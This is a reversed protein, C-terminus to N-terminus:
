KAKILLWNKKKGGFATNVLVYRGKMKKGVLDVEIETGTRKILKFKGKDWIRVAGAGYQGEPIVGEFNIYDVPHDEVAVALRREGAKQPPIKPIAWSKLVIEASGIEAPLELRFDWHLHSAHHEQVVFRNKSVGPFSVGPEPTKDFKRKKKYIELAMAKFHTQPSVERFIRSKVEKKLETEKM